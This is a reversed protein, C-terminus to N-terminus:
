RLKEFRRIRVRVYPPTAPTPPRGGGRHRDVPTKNGTNRGEKQMRVKRDYHMNRAKGGILTEDVEVECGEGGIKGGHCEDQMVKRIRQLMFWATTQTVKVDRAIEYSSVGNKCNCILWM